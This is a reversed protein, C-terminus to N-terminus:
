FSRYVISSRRVVSAPRLGNVENALIISSKRGEDKRREDRTERETDGGTKM